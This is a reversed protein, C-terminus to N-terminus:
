APESLPVVSVPVVSWDGRAWTNLFPVFHRSVVVAEQADAKWAQKRLFRLDPVADLLHGDVIRVGQPLRQRVPALFSLTDLPKLADPVAATLGGTGSLRTTALGRDFCWVVLEHRWATVAPVLPRTDPSGDRPAAGYLVARLRPLNADDPKELLDALANRLWADSRIAPGDAQAHSAINLEELQPWADVATEVLKLANEVTCAYVSNGYDGLHLIVNSGNDSIM